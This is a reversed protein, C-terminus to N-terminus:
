VQEHLWTAIRQWMENCSPIAFHAYNAIRLQAAQPHLAAEPPVHLDHASACTFLKKDKWIPAADLRTHLAQLFKSGPVMDDHRRTAFVYRIWPYTLLPAGYLPSAICVVAEVTSEHKHTLAYELAVLGGMSHGVLIVHQTGHVNQLYALHQRLVAVYEAINQNKRHALAKLAVVNPAVSSQQQGTHVDFPLDMSFAYIPHDSLYQDLAERAQLWESQNGSAGHVLVIPTKTGNHHLRLPGEFSPASGGPVLYHWINCAVYWADRALAVGWGRVGTWWGTM